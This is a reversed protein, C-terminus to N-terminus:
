IEFILNFCCTFIIINYMRIHLMLKFYKYFLYSKYFTSFARLYKLSFTLIAIKFYFFIYFCYNVSILVCIKV